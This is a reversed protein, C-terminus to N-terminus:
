KSKTKLPPVADLLCGTPCLQCWPRNFFLSLVVILGGACLMITSAASFSFAYFPEMNFLPLSFGLLLTLWIFTLFFNRLTVVSVKLRLNRKKFPSVKSVLMQLAGMPCLYNCYYKRHGLVSMAVSLLLLTILEINNRITVGKTLWSHLLGLSLMQKFCVGSVVVVALLYYWYYKRLKKKFIMNLSLFLLIFTLAMRVISLWRIQRTEKKIKLFSSITENVTKIIASSSYTAGSVADVQMSLLTTDISMGNWKELLKKKNIYNIFGPTEQNELLYVGSIKQEPTFAIMLPIEGAYGVNHVDFDASCLLEALKKGNASKISISGDHKKKFSATNPLIKQLTSVSYLPKKESESYHKIFNGGRIGVAALLLIIVIYTGINKTSIKKQM